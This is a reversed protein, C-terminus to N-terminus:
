GHHAEKQHQMREAEMREWTARDVLPPKWLWQGGDVVLVAGTVYSAADSVLFLAAKVIDDIKGLRRLPVKEALRQAADGPFLRRAGETDGVPGPAIACVRIGHEGWEAALNRGLAEIGAKAAMVPAQMPTGQYHLTATINLIVGSGSAKLAPFAAHVMNFTGDLDIDVVTKFGNPSLADTPCLFNGAAGNLLIDLGGHAEVSKAIAAEAVEPDRVDGAFPVASIGDARLRAAADEMVQQGIGMILVRAGHQGFARAIGFCIGTGGGTILASRGQLLDTRFPSHNEM